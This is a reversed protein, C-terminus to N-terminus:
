AARINIHKAVWSKSCLALQPISYFLTYYLFTLCQLSWLPDKTCKPAGGEGGSQVFHQIMSVSIDEYDGPQIFLGGLQRFRLIGLAQCDCHIYSAM